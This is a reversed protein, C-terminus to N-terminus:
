EEIWYEGSVEVTLSKAGPAREANGLMQGRIGKFKGTGGV